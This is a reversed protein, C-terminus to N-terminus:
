PLVSRVNGMAQALDVRAINHQYLAAIQNDRARELRTQADTVELGVAVGAEHRRRAQALENAALELGERAVKVQEEASQLADLALRIDLEVQQRLDETREREQRYQSASEARRAERRGGDFIPIRMSIGVQRTPLASDFGAGIAGYDGFAQASPLRELKVASASLRAAQEREQQARLDPRTRLAQARAKELTVADPPRYELRDTLKLETELRMGMARLLQLHAARRANRAVILRQRDNALQVKARTVEIGTGTGAAKQEEAQSLVAEALEVNAEAADMDADGKLAAMYARAVQAAVADDVRGAESKAATVGTRSAQVRRVAAYDFITQTASARADTTTFPGITRAFSFGPVQVAQRLGMAELSVVQNRVYAQGSLDPLLAARAQAARAAAQKVAEAALQVNTNGEPSTALEVARRLSLELPGDAAAIPLAAALIWAARTM